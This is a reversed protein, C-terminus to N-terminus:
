FIDARGRIKTVFLYRLALFGAADYIEVSLKRAFFSKLDKLIHKECRIDALFRSYYRQHKIEFFTQM